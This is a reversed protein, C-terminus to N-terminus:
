RSTKLKRGVRKKKSDETDPQEPLIQRLGSADLWADFVKGLIANDADGIWEAVDQRTFDLDKMQVRYNGILGTYVLDCVVLLPSENLKSSILQGAELPDTGVIKGLAEKQWNNFRLTRAKGGLELEIIGSSM